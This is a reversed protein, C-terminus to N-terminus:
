PVRFVDWSASVIAINPQMGITRKFAEVLLRMHTREIGLRELETQQANILSPNLLWIALAESHFVLFANKQVLNNTGCRDTM